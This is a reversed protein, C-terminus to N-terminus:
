PKKIEVIAFKAVRYGEAKLKEWTYRDRGCTYVFDAM